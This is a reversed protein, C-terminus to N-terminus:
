ECEKSIDSIKNFGLSLKTFPKDAGFKRSEFHLKIVNLVVDAILNFVTCFECHYCKRFSIIGVSSEKYLYEYLFIM